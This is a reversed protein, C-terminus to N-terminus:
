EHLTVEHGDLTRYRSIKPKAIEKWVKEGVPFRVAYILYCLPLNTSETYVLKQTAKLDHTELGVTYLEFLGSRIIHPSQAAYAL